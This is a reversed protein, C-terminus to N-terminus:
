RAYVTTEPFAAVYAFWFTTRVPLPELRQGALAGSLAEGALSWESETERDVFRGDWLEFTLSRGDAQPRFAAAALGEARSFVV